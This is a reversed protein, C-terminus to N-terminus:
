RNGGDHRFVIGGAPSAVKKYGLDSLFDYTGPFVTETAIVPKTKEITRQAGMLVKLEYGECDLQIADCDSLGLDDIRIMPHATESEDQIRTAGVNIPNRSIKCHGGHEGLACNFAEINIYPDCNDKLFPFNEDDVEFTLVKLFSPSFGVPYIGICGGAQVITRLLVANYVIADRLAGFELISDDWGVKHRVPWCFRTLRGDFLTSGSYAPLAQLM